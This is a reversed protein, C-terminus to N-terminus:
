PILNRIFQDMHRDMLVNEEELNVKLLKTKNQQM